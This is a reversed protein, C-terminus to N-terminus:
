HRLIENASKATYIESLSMGDVADLREIGLHKILTNAHKLSLPSFEKIAQLRGARLLAEDINDIKTNFTLIVQFKLIDNLVGDSVNLLTSVVSKNHSTKDRKKIAQEADECLLIIEKGGSVYNLISGIFEPKALEGLLDHSVIIFEKNENIEQVDNMLHRIMFTKGTGPSGYFIYLGKTSESMRKVINKYFVSFKEKSKNPYHLDLNQFPELSASIDVRIFNYGQMSKNVLSVMCYKEKSEHKSYEAMCNGIKKIFQSNYDSREGVASSITASNCEGEYIYFYGGIYLNNITDSFLFCIQGYEGYNSPAGPIEISPKIIMNCKFPNEKFMPICHKVFSDISMCSKEFSYIHFSNKPHHSGTPNNFGIKSQEERNSHSHFILQSFYKDLLSTDMGFYLGDIGGRLVSFNPLEEFEFLINAIYELSNKTAIESKVHKSEPPGDINPGYDASYFAKADALAKRRNKSHPHCMDEVYKGVKM